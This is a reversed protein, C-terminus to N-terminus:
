SVKADERERLYRRSFNKGWDLHRRSNFVRGFFLIMSLAIQNAAFMAEVAVKPSEDKIKIGIALQMMDSNNPMPSSEGQEISRALSNWTGHLYVTAKKYTSLFLIQTARFDNLSFQEAIRRDVFEARKKLPTQSWEHGRGFRPKRSGDPFDVFESTAHLSELQRLLEPTYNSQITPEFQRLEELDRWERFAGFQLYDLATATGSFYIFEANVVREVMVRVLAFADDVFGLRALTRVSACTQETRLFLLYAIAFELTFPEVKLMDRRTLLRLERALTRSAKFEVELLRKHRDKTLQRSAM